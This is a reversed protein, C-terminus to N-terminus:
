KVVYQLIEEAHEFDKQALYVEALGEYAEIYKPNHEILTIYAEEAQKYREEHFLEEAEVLVDREAPNPSDPLHGKKRQLRYTTELERIKKYVYGFSNKIMTWLPVVIPGVKHSQETLKRQLREAYLKKKQINQQEEPISSTDISALTPFKRILVIIGVVLAIGIIILPLYMANM